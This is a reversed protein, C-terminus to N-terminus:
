IQLARLPSLLTTRNRPSWWFLNLQQSCTKKCSQQPPQICKALSACKSNAVGHLLLEIVPLSGQEDSTGTTVSRSWEQQIRCEALLTCFHPFRCSLAWHYDHKAVLGGMNQKRQVLHLVQWLSWVFKQNLNTQPGTTTKGYNHNNLWIRPTEPLLPLSTFRVALPLRDRSISPPKGLSWPVACGWSKSVASWPLYHSRRLFSHQKTSVNKASSQM